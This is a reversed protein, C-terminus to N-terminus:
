KSRSIVTLLNIQLLLHIAIWKVQLGTSFANEKRKLTAPLFIDCCRFKLYRIDSIVVYIVASQQRAVSCDFSIKFSMTIDCRLFTDNQAEQKDNTEKAATKPSTM